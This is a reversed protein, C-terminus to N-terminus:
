EAATGGAAAAPSDFTEWLDDLRKKMTRAIRAVAVCTDEADASNANEALLQVGLAMEAAELVAGAFDLNEAPDAEMLSNLARQSLDRDNCLTVHKRKGDISNYGGTWSRSVRREGSPKRYKTKKTEITAM